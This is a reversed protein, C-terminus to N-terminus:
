EDQIEGTSAEIRQLAYMTLLTVVHPSFLNQYRQVGKISLEVQDRQYLYPYKDPALYEKFAPCVKQLYWPLKFVTRWYKDSAVRLEVRTIQM